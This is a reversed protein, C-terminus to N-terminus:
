GVHAGCAIRAGAPLISGSAITAGEGVAVNTQFTVREGIRVARAVVSQQIHCQKGVEVDDWLVTNKIFADREVCCNQGLVSNELQAGTAIMCGDGIFEVDRDSTQLGTRVRGQRVDLNGQLYAEPNGLDKWYIDAVFGSLCSGAALLQPFLDRAFLFEEQPPIFDFIHPELIYIGANVLPFQEEGRAPKEIFRTICSDDSLTVNGFPEPNPVRALALSAIATQTAHFTVFDSLNLNTLLDGSLVLFRENLLDSALRVAGATGYDKDAVVYHLNVGLHHGDGFYDRIATPLYYLLLIVETCGHRKLLSITHELIPRNLVPVMPKPLTSTLPQLRRGVGGAMIVAKM